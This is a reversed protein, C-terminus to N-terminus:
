LCIVLDTLLACNNQQPRVSYEYTKRHVNYAYTTTSRLVERLVKDGPISRYGASKLKRKYDGLTFVAPMSLAVDCLSGRDMLPSPDSIVAETDDPLIPLQKCLNPDMPSELVMWAKKNRCPVFVPKRILKGDKDTTSKSLNALAQKVLMRHYPNVSGEDAVGILVVMEDVSISFVGEPSALMHALILLRAPIGLAPNHLISVSIASKM